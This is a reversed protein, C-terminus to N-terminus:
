DNLAVPLCRARLGNMYKMAAECQTYTMAESVQMPTYGLLWIAFLFSSM